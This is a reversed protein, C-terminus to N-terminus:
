REYLKRLTYQIIEHTYKLQLYLLSNPKMTLTLYLFFRYRVTQFIQYNVFILSKIKDILYPLSKLKM